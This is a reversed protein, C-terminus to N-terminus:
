IPFPCTLGTANTDYHRPAHILTVNPRVEISNAYFGGRFLDKGSGLTLGGFPALITGDFGTDLSATRDGGYIVLLSSGPRSSFLGKVSLQTKVFIVFQGNGALDVVSNPELELSEFYYTGPTLTLRAKPKLHVNARATPALSLTANPSM